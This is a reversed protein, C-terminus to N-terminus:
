SLKQNCKWSSLSMDDTVQGQRWAAVRNLVGERMEHFPLLSTERVIKQVGEIGLTEGRSDFVDTIGDTHLIIRDGARLELELTPEEEVAEPLTGLIMSRSEVLRPETRPRVIM